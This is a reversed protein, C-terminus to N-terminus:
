LIFSVNLMTEVKGLYNFINNQSLADNNTCSQSPASASAEKKVNKPAEKEDQNLNKNYDNM